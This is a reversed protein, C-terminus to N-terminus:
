GAAEQLIALADMDQVSAEGRNVAATKEALLDMVRDEFGEPANAIIDAIQKARDLDVAAETQPNTAAIAAIRHLDVSVVGQSDLKALQEEARRKAELLKKRKKARKAAEAQAKAGLKDGKAKDKLERLREYMPALRKEIDADSLGKARLQNHQKTIERGLLDVDRQSRPDGLAAGMLSGGGHVALLLAGSIAAMAVPGAAASLGAFGGVKILAATPLSALALGHLFDTMRSAGPLGEAVQGALVDFHASARIAATGVKALGWKAGATMGDWTRRLWGRKKKLNDKLKGKVEDPTKGPIGEGPPELKADPDFAQVEGSTPVTEPKPPLQISKFVEPAQDGFADRFIEDIEPDGSLIEGEGPQTLEPPGSIGPDEQQSKEVIDELPERPAKELGQEGLDEPGVIPEPKPKGWKAKAQPWFKKLAGRIEDISLNDALADGFEGHRVDNIFQNPNPDPSM